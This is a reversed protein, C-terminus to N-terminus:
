FPLDDSGDDVVAEKQKKPEEKPPEPTNETNNEKYDILTLSSGIVETVYKTGNDSEYSRTRLKGEVYVRGGKFGFREIVEASPGWFVVSHWDTREVKKGDRDKYSDDTAVTFNAVKTGGQTARVEPDKGLRGLLTVKNVSM